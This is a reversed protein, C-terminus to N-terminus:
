KRSNKEDSSKKKEKIKQAEEETIYRIVKEVYWIHKLSERTRVKVSMYGHKNCKALCVSGTNTSTYNMKKAVLKGDCKPCCTAFFSPNKAVNEKTKYGQFAYLFERNGVQLIEEEKTRPPEYLDYSPYKDLLEGPLKGFIKATYYADSYARHFPIDKEIGLEDIAAELGKNRDEEGTCIGYIRQLNIYSFPGEALSLKYYNMNERLELVDQSGWTVFTYPEEGCWALFERVAKTFYMGAKLEEESIQIMQATYKNLRHYVTPKIVQKYSDLITGDKKCKVAGIELIEFHLEREKSSKGDM